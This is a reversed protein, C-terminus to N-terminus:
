PERHTHKAPDAVFKRRRAIPADSQDLTTKCTPCVLEAELDAPSPAAVASATAALLAVVLAVFLRVRM